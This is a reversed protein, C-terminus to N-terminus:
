EYRLSKVPNDVAAKLVRGSSTALSVVFLVVVPIVISTVTLARYYHFISGLLADIALYSAASGATASIILVILFPRNMLNVISSVKAGLVKRIGIEKIRKIVNLSMLTFLGITSLILALIGLFTFMLSINTNVETAAAVEDELRADFPKNPIQKHWITELDSQVNKLNGVPASAVVFNLDTDSSLRIGVPVVPQWFGWMYFDRVVGVVTLRTSDDIQVVQGIPEEWGFDRVAQENIIVSSQRDYEELDKEFFRGDVLKIEMMDMYDITMDMMDMEQEREGSRFVRSYTWWGISHKTMAIDSLGPLQRAENYFTKVKEDNDILINLVGEKKFGIDLEEQYRANGVFALSSILAIATFLYQLGLLIRSLISTGGLRLKGRLISVPEFSSVYLAPYAGAVVSTFFLLGALFALIEPNDRLSLKLDIFDWLASYAPVMWMAILLALVLALLSILINEGMFQAILQMRNGGMVKRVGIEKLRGSSIALSTNTFNFCAILLMLVAMILPVYIAPAPPAQSLWNSRLGDAVLGLTSLPQLYYNHIRWDDRAQNQIQVYNDNLAPVVAQPLEDGRTMIFTAAIFRRWDSNNSNVNTLYEDFPLIADFQLSSNQSIKEVVGGVIFSHTEGDNDIVQIMEGVPNKDGFYVGSADDTLIIQGPEAFAAANGYKFPFTFMDFIGPDAFAILKDFTHIDKKIVLGSPTYRVVSELEAFEEKIANGLPLPSIGFQIEHGEVQKNVQVKYIREYNVHQRDFNAAYKYNLYAVICCALSLGLGILNIAFYGRTKLISRLTTKFFNRLMSLVLEPLIIHYLNGNLALTAKKHPWYEFFTPTIALRAPLIRLKSDSNNNIVNM